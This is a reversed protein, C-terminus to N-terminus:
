ENQNDDARRHPLSEKKLTEDRQKSSDMNKTDHNVDGAQSLTTTDGQGDGPVVSGAPSSQWVADVASWAFSYGILVQSLYHKQDNIRSWATLGSGAQALARTPWAGAARAANLWPIAAVFAHGSASNDDAFPRWRPGHTQDTPRAAGLGYQVSWLTPLGVMMAEFNRRGWRTLASSHYLSDLIALLLWYLFWFRRGFPEVVGAVRDTADSRLHNAYWRDCAEDAGSYALVGVGVLAGGLRLFNRRSYMRRWYPGSNKILAPGRRRGNVPRYLLVVLAMVVLVVWVWV